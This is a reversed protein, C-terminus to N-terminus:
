AMVCAAVSDQEGTWDDYRGIVVCCPLPLLLLLLLLLLRGGFVV